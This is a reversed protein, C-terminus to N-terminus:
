EEEEKLFDHKILWDTVHESMAETGYELTWGETDATEWFKDWLGDVDTGEYSAKIHDWTWLWTLSPYVPLSELIGIALDLKQRVEDKHMRSLGRM